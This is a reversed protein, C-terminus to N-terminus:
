ICYKNDDFRIKQNEFDNEVLIQKGWYYEKKNIIDEIIFDSNGIQSLEDSEAAAKAFNLYDRMKAQM